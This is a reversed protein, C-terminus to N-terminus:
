VHRTGRLLAMPMFSWRLSGGPILGILVLFLPYSDGIVMIMYLLFSLRWLMVGILFASLKKIIRPNM